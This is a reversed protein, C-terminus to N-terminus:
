GPKLPDAVPPRKFDRPEIKQASSASSGRQRAVGGAGAAVLGGAGSARKIQAAM